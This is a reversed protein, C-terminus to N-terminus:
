DNIVNKRYKRNYTVNQFQLRKLALEVFDPAKSSRKPSKIVRKKREFKRWKKLRRENLTIKLTLNRNIIENKTDVSDHPYASKIADNLEKDMKRVNFTVKKM